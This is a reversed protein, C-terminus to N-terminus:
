VVLRMRLARNEGCSLSESCVPVRGKPVALSDLGSRVSCSMLRARWKKGCSPPGSVAHEVWCKDACSLETYVLGKRDWM